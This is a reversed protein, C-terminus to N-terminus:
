WWHCACVSASAKQFGQGTELSKMGVSKGVVDIAHFSRM